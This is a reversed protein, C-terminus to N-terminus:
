IRGDDHSRDGGDLMSIQNENVKISVQKGLYWKMVDEENEWQTERGTEKRHDLMKKFAIMYLKKIKPFENLEKEQNSSMPCGICGLRDYGKDYLNPYKLNNEKIFRWVDDDTWDIIPNLIFKGRKMCNELMMRAEHNEDSKLQYKKNKHYNEITGRNSRNKSEAWRVGTVVFKGDGGTEKLKDCCYRSMRTPPRFKKIILNWMTINKGDKDKPYNFIVDKYYKKMNYILEPFDLGTVSYNSTFKVGSMKMLQYCVISDKGGSFGLWFGNEDLDLAMSEFEQIREISTKIKDKYTDVFKLQEM